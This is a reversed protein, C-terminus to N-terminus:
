KSRNRVYLNPEEGENMLESVKRMASDLISYRQNYSGSSNSWSVEFNWQPKRRFYVQSAGAPINSNFPMDPYVPRWDNPRDTDYQYEMEIDSM